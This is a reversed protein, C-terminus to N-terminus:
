FSLGSQRASDALVAIRGHYAFGNRDFVVANVGADKARQAVIAGVREAMKIGRLNEAKLSAEVSSAAALVIGKQDDIVQAQIHKSSRFICLRPKAIMASRKRWFQMKRAHRIKKRNIMRYM